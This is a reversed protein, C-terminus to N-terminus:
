IFSGKSFGCAGIPSAIGGSPVNFVNSVDAVNSVGTVNSVDAVGSVDASESVRSGIGATAAAGAATGPSRAHRRTARSITDATWVSRDAATYAVSITVKPKWTARTSPRLM